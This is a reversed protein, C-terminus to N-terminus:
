ITILPLDTCVLDTMIINIKDPVPPISFNIDQVFQNRYIPVAKINLSIKRFYYINLNIPTVGIERGDIYIMADTPTSEIILDTEFSGESDGITYSSCSIILLYILSLILNKM